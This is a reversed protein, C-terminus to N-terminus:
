KYEISHSTWNTIKVGEDEMDIIINQVDDESFGKLSILGDYEYKYGKGDYTTWGKVQGSSTTSLTKIGHSRFVNNLLKKTPNIAEMINNEENLFQEFLKIRKM